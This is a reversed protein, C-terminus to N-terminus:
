RFRIMFVSIVNDFCHLKNLMNCPYCPTRTPSKSFAKDGKMKVDGLFYAAEEGVLLVGTGIPMYDIVSEM